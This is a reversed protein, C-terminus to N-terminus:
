KARGRNGSGRNPTLAAGSVKADMIKLHCFNRVLGIIDTIKLKLLTVKAKDVM